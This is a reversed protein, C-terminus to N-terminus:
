HPSQNRASEDKAKQTKLEDAVINASGPRYTLFFDYNALEDAWRGQRPNLLRNATFHELAKHNTVIIFPTTQLGVLCGRWESLGRMVIPM